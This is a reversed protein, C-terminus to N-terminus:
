GMVTNVDRQWLFEPEGQTKALGTDPVFLTCSLRNVVTTNVADVVGDRSLRACPQERSDRCEDGAGGVVASLEDLTGYAEVRLSDKWVQKGGALRTEGAEGDM